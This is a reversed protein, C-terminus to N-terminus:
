IRSGAAVPAAGSRRWRWPLLRQAAAGGRGRLLMLVILLASFVAMPRRGAATLTEMVWGTTTTLQVPDHAPARFVVHMVQWWLDAGMELWPQPSKLFEMLFTLVIAAIAAGWISGLGGLTVMVVVAVSKDLDFQSPKILNDMHAQLSGAVGAFFAGVVFAIVKYRTADIGAAAAAIEDERVAKIARGTMSRSLRWVVLMTFIAAGYIWPFMYYTRAGLAAEDPYPVFGYPTVQM